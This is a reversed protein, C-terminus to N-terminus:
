AKELLEKHATFDKLLTLLLALILPGIIMGAFGFAQLGGLVGVLVIIPHIETFRNVLYPRLFNDLNM